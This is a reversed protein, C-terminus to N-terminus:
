YIMQFVANSKRVCKLLQNDFEFGAPCAKNHSDGSGNQNYDLYRDNEEERSVYKDNYYNHRNSPVFVESATKPDYRNHHYHPKNYNEYPTFVDNIYNGRTQKKQYRENEPEFRPRMRKIADRNILSKEGFPLRDSVAEATGDLIEAM